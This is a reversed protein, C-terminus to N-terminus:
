RRNAIAKNQRHEIKALDRGVLDTEDKILYLSTNGDRRLQYASQSLAMRRTKTESSYHDDDEDNQLQRLKTISMEKLYDQKKAYAQNIKKSLNRGFEGNKERM